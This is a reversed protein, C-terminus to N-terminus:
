VFRPRKTAGGQSAKLTQAQPQGRANLTAAFAVHDGVDFSNLQRQHLFVDNFGQASLAQCAIFGYGQAQNFSKIVGEYEGIVEAQDGLGGGVPGPEKRKGAMQMGALGMMGLQPQSGGQSRLDYAQPKNDKNLSVAFTVTQGVGFGAPLQATHLFVDQGFLANLEESHIFGFGKDFNVSKITGKGRHETLAKSPPFTLDPVSHTVVGPAIEPRADMAACIVKVANEVDLAGIADVVHQFHLPVAAM